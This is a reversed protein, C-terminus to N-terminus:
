LSPIRASMCIESVRQLDAPALLNAYVASGLWFVLFCQEACEPLDRLLQALLLALLAFLLLLPPLAHPLTIYAVMRSTDLRLQCSLTCSSGRM